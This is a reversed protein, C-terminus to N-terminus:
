KQKPIEIALTPEGDGIDVAQEYSAFLPSGLPNEAGKSVGDYAQVNVLIPGRCVMKGNERTDFKGNKIHAFGQPGDGGRKADPEFLIIGAPVPKGQYTVNGAVHTRPPGSAGCGVLVLVVVSIALRSM